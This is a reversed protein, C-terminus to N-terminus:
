FGTPTCFKTGRRHHASFGAKCNIGHRRIRALIEVAEYSGEVYQTLVHVRMGIKLDSFKLPMASPHCRFLCHIKTFETLNITLGKVALTETEPDVITLRGRVTLTPGQVIRKVFYKENDPCYGIRVGVAALDLKKITTPEGGIGIIQTPKYDENEELIIRAKIGAITLFGSEDYAAPGEWCIGKLLRQTIGPPHHICKVDEGDYVIGSFDDVKEKGAMASYPTFCFGISLVLLFSLKLLVRHGETFYRNNM